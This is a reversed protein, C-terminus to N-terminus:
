NMSRINVHILSLNDYKKKDCLYRKINEELVYRSDFNNFNLNNFYNQTQVEWIKNIKTM